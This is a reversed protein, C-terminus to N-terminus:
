GSGIWPQVDNGGCDDDPWSSDSFADSKNGQEKATFEDYLETLVRMQTSLKSPKEASRPGNVPPDRSHQGNTAAGDGWGPKITMWGREIMTKASSRPNACESLSKALLEAAFPTLPKRLRKRHDVIATALEEGIVGCLASAPNPKPVRCVPKEILRLEPPDVASPKGNAIFANANIDLIRDEPIKDELVPARTANPKCTKEQPTADIVRQNQKNKKWRSSANESAEVKRSEREHLEIEARFNSILGNELTLKEMLVLADLARMLGPTPLGCCRALRADDRRIPGGHDYIMALITVYVGREAASLTSVGSIWDSPFFKFWAYNM